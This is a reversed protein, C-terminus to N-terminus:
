HNYIPGGRPPDDACSLDRPLNGPLRAAPLRARHIHRCRWVACIANNPIFPLAYSHFVQFYLSQGSPLLDPPHLSGTISTIIAM